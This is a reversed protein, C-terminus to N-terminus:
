GIHRTIDSLMRAFAQTYFGHNLSTDLSTALAAFAIIWLLMSMTDLNCSVGLPHNPNRAGGAGAGSIAGRRNSM